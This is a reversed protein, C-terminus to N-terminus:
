ANKPEKKEALFMENVSAIPVVAYGLGDLFAFLDRRAGDAWKLGDGFRDPDWSEFVIRPLAHEHLTRVAGRLVELEHGEVDIKILGIRGLPPSELKGEELFLAHSALWSDLSWQPVREWSTRKAMGPFTPGIRSGSGDASAHSLPVDNLTQASLAVRAPCAKTQLDNLVIAACLQYFSTRNPEFAIVKTAVDALGVTWSGVHAGVDVFTEGPPLWGRVWEILGREPTGNNRDYFAVHEADQLVLRKGPYTRDPQQYVIV